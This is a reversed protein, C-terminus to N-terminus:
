REDNDNPDRYDQSVRRGIWLGALVLVLGYAIALILEGSM